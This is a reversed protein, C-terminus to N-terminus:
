LDAQQDHQDGTVRSFDPLALKAEHFRMVASEGFVYFPFPESFVCDAGRGILFPALHAGTEAFISIPTEQVAAGAALTAFTGNWLSMGSVLAVKAKPVNEKLQDGPEVTTNGITQGIVDLALDFARVKWGRREFSHIFARVVGVIIVLDGPVLRYRHELCDAVFEARDDGRRSLAGRLRTEFTAIPSRCAFAGDVVAVRIGMDADAASAVSQGILAESLLAPQAMYCCGQGIVHAFCLHFHFSREAASPQVRLEMVALQRVVLAPNSLAARFVPMALFEFPDAAGTSHPVDAGKISGGHM